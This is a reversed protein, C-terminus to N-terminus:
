DAVDNERRYDPEISEPRIPKIFHAAGDAAPM